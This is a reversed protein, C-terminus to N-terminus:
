LFRASIQCRQYREGYNSKHQGMEGLSMRPHERVDLRNRDPYRCYQKIEDKQTNLRHAVPLEKKVNVVAIDKFFPMGSDMQERHTAL